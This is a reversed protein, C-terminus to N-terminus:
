YTFAEQHFWVDAAGSQGKLIRVQAEAAANAVDHVMSSPGCVAIGVSGGTSGSVQAVAEPLDARGEAFNVNFLQAASRVSGGPVPSPKDFVIGKEDVISNEKSPTSPEHNVGSRSTATGTEHITLSMGEIPTAISNRAAIEALAEIFWVRMESDSSSVVVQIEAKTDQRQGAQIWDEILALSFGAGAGGAVILTKDFGQSWRAGLGGYPGELLVPVTAGNKERALAALQATIGGRPEVYFVLASKEAKSGAPVSCVTFPHATIAHVSPTVFRLFLHQGPRWSSTTPVTIKLSHETELTLSARHVGHVLYTKGWAFLLSAVYISGTAIFYDASTLIFDCHIFMFVVFVAAFFLHTSKFFEYYRNRITSISMFTLWAQAILAIVGTLWLGGTSWEAMLDGKWQHFIIFPFTHVLALVLMAWAAWNHFINLKEHPVGTLATIFSAKSGLAFVFPMCGLALWGTRTAIPPSNGYSLTKTNPWYYPQPVLTLVTERALTTLLTAKLISNSSSSLPLLACLHLALSGSGWAAHSWAVANDLSAEPIQDQPVVLAQIDSIFTAM